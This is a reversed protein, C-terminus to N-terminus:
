LFKLLACWSELAHRKSFHSELMARARCGMDALCESDTSLDLLTRALRKGDGPNVIVGCRHQNVLQALEGKETTIAIIPRGAAAIGYFKSPFLLGELKPELSIWHVDAVGLSYKLMNRHQYPFFRFMPSLSQQGVRRQFDSFKHGGGICVFVIRSNDKLHHSAALVTDFEHARGLNGSYGVVFKDRLQWKCRFPNEAHPIPRIEEDDTWNPIFYVRNSVGQRSVIKSVMQRAVVVNAQKFSKDRLVSIVKAIPGRLFPVNLNVALEPYIDQVWNVLNAGQRTVVPVAFASILPPDTMAVVIDDRRVLARLCRLTSAYYSCYDISRGLLALRGFHTTSIRHIQVNRVSDQAPLRANAQDYLQRSTIVHINIGSGALHFALDTLIQSTASHDPFFFRNLFIIRKMSRNAPCLTGLGQTLM